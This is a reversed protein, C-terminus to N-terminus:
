PLDELRYSQYFRWMEETADIDRSTKGMFPIPWGGPWTHGGNEITYLTVEADQDCGVYRIGQVDGQSPIVVPAPECGNSQAWTAVWDEAGSFYSPADAAGAAWRLLWGEMHGGSYPVLPDATGHFAMVPLPRSPSCDEMGVIAGAVSGIAAIQDAVECGLRVTMGGGNSLGNVYIRSRDMTAVASLDDLMDRFFQVDDVELNGWTAGANWRQPFKSGQPYVVLFGEQDALQHWGTILAQSNPNTLFGHFSFVVPTPQAPDHGPPVYLFYCRDLGGSVIPRASWGAEAPGDTARTCQPAPAVMWYTVAAVVCLLLVALVIILSIRSHQSTM